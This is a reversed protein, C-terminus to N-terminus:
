TQQRPVFTRLTQPFGRWTVLKGEKTRSVTKKVQKRDPRVKQLEQRHFTGLIVEARMDEVKYRYYSRTVGRLPHIIKHVKFLEETWSSTYGTQFVHKAKSLRVLDGVKLDTRRKLPTKQRRWRNRQTLMTAFLHKWAKNQNLPTVDKPAMDTSSHVAANYSTVLKPLVEVYRRTNTSDFFRWLKARITRHFREVTSAKTYNYAPFHRIEKRLLLKRVDKNFFEKGLDSRIQKPKADALIGELARAVEPGTKSKIPQVRAFKSLVDVATLWYKYGDNAEALPIVSVLDIAWQENLGQVFIRNHPFRKRAHKFRTYPHQESLWLNAQKLTSGAAKALKKASGTFSAPHNPEYFINAFKSPPVRLAKRARTSKNSNKRGGAM